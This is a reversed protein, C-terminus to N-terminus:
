GREVSAGAGAQRLVDVLATVSPAGEVGGSGDRYLRCSWAEGLAHPFPDAGNVLITPSGHLGADEAAAPDTVLRLAIPVDDRGLASLAERLREQALRWNPCEDFYVIRVEM